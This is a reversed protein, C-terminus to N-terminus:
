TIYRIMSEPRSIVESCIIDRYDMLPKEDMDILSNDSSTLATQSFIEIDKQTPNKVIGKKIILGKSIYFLKYGDDVPISLVLNSNLLENFKNISNIIYSVNFLIDKYLSAKEFNNITAENKMKNELENLFINAKSNDTLIEYLSSRNKSFEDENLKVPFLHYDFSYSQNKKIIPYLNKLANITENLHFRRRFPGFSNEERYEVVSLARYRNYNELKLYVYGRDHKMQSNFIPKITKILSCELVRAELHTDTVIFDIDDILNVMRNVKDWKPNNAFYTRVRSKLRKSKGVYIINSKADIMKYIGPKMPLM